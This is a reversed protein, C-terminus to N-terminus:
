KLKRKSTILLFPTLHYKMRFGATDTPTSIFTLRDESELTWNQTNHSKFRTHFVFHFGQGLFYFNKARETVTTRQISANSSRQTTKTATSSRLAKVYDETMKATYTLRSNQKTEATRDGRYLRQLDRQEQESMAKRDAGM